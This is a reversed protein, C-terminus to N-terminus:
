IIKLQELGYAIASDNCDVSIFNAAQKVEDTANSTAIKTHAIEFMSLDNRDNGFVILDEKNIKAYSMIKHLATQKNHHKQNFEIGMNPYYHVTYSEKLLESITKLTNESLYGKIILGKMLKNQSHQYLTNVNHVTINHSVFRQDNLNHHYYTDDSKIIFQAEYQTLLDITNLLESYELPHYVTTDLDYAAGNYAVSHVREDIGQAILKVFPYPRGSALVVRHGLNLAKIIAQKNAPSVESQDNLLTGDLDTVILKSVTM